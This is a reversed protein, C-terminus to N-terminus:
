KEKKLLIKENYFQNAEDLFALMKSWNEKPEFNHKYQKSTEIILKNEIVKATSIFAGTTNDVSKNLKDLGVVKYGEPIELIIKYDYSRPNTMYINADRKRNKDKIKVQGGIFKGIELIYNPGAKKIYKNKLKFAETFVFNTNIGYRGTKEIKYTYDEIDKEGVSLEAETQEKFYKKQKGKLKTIVADLKQKTQQRKKKGIILGYGKLLSIFDKTDYKKYDEYVYDSFIMRDYQDSTKSYGKLKTKVDIKIESFDDNLKLKYEKFSLNDKYSSSPLKGGKIETMKGKKNASLLYIDTGELYPSIYNIDTHPSFFSAYVKNKTNVRVVLDVNEEILLDKINGNYRKTGVVINYPIKNKALFLTFYRVFEKQNQILAPMYFANDLIQTKAVVMFEIFRTLYYHRMYYYVAIVKEENSHFTKGKLFGKVDGINGSPRFRTDYLELIENQSVNSKIIKENEPLFATARNEFKGSRAFYTQMKIAPVEALPYFWRPFDQKEIDSAELVYKRFNRKDTKIEKLKPAGNISKFNIFFDNETELYLKFNMIPYEDSLTREVPDFIYEYPSKFPEVSYFYYDVIDGVELNAIAIKYNGDDQAIAEKDVDIAIEKGNPKVIKIAFFVKGKNRWTYLGKTSRFRNKFSFKSFEEVANKDLLKIRKRISNKYTVRKGFKHYDYNINKYIVVASENKWKDPIENANKYKDDKGWFFEKAALEEKSQAITTFVFGLVALLLIKFKM